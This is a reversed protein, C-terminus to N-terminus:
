EGRRTRKFRRMQTCLSQGGSILPATSPVPVDRKWSEDQEKKECSAGYQLLKIRNQFRAASLLLQSCATHMTTAGDGYCGAGRPM